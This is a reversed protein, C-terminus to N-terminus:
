IHPHINGCSTSVHAIVIDAVSEEAIVQLPQESHLATRMVMEQGVGEEASAAAQLGTLCSVM